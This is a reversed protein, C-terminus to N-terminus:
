RTEASVEESYGSCGARNCARLKFFYKTRTKLGTNLLSSAQREMRGLVQFPGSEGERRLIEYENADPLPTWKLLIENNSRPTAVVDMPADPTLAACASSGLLMLIVIISIRLISGRTDLKRERM